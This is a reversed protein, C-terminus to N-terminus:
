ELQHAKMAHMELDLGTQKQTSLLIEDQKHHMDELSVTTKLLSLCCDDAQFLPFHLTLSFDLIAQHTPTIKKLIKEAEMEELRLKNKVESMFNQEGTSSLSLVNYRLGGLCPINPINIQCRKSVNIKKFSCTKGM